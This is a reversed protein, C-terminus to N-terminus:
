VPPMFAHVPLHYPSLRNFLEWQEAEHIKQVSVEMKPAWPKCIKLGDVRADGDLELLGISKGKGGNDFTWFEADYIQATALHIADPTALTKGSPNGLLKQRFDRAKMAVPPDVDRATHHQSRFSRRFLREQDETLQASLVEIFTITSTVIVCLGESSEKAAFRIADLCDKGHSEEGKLWALYVCADWYIIRRLKNGSM